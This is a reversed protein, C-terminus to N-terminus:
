QDLDLTSEPFVGVKFEGEKEVWWTCVWEGRDASRLITMQPGGSKLMVVDGIKM